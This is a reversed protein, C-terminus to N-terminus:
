GGMFGDRFKAPSIGTEQKFIRSFHYRDAFGTKQAVEDISFSSHHLFICAQNIRKTRVYKQPSMGIEEKFLRTFTNTALNTQNALVPNSLDKGISEEIFALIAIIRTDQTIEQWSNAPLDSLLDNILSQIALTSHFGFHTHEYNLHRKILLLKQKLHDTLDFIFVGPLISDYPMGVNFHIFLHLILQMPLAANDLLDSSIRGGELQYGQKPVHHDHLRTSYATNPAILLIKDSTLPYDVGNYSIIAGSYDNHYIRWYPFALESFEWKTLWWYRCCHLKLNFTPFWQVIDSPDGKDPNKWISEM